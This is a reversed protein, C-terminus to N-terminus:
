GGYFYQLNKNIIEDSYLRTGDLKKLGRMLNIYAAKDVVAPSERGGATYADSGVPIMNAPQRVVDGGDALAESGLLARTENITDVNILARDKLNQMRRPELADITSEDYTLILNESGKYRPLLADGLFGSITRFLPIINNDYFNLKAVEMTAMAMNDPSVMPLPVKLANYITNAHRANLTPFDMDKVSESLQQWHFDGGLFPVEGANAAGQLKERVVHKVTDITEQNLTKPDGKFSLIGSPRGQNKLLANNHINSLLYQSIELQCAVLSSVGLLDNSSFNPNFARLHVIEKNAKSNIFRKRANREYNIQGSDKGYKYIQAYGDSTNPEITITTPKLSNIEIPESNEDKGKGTINLYFNGTLRYYNVIEQIFLESSTFPNPKKLLKLLPHDYVYEDKATNYLVFNISAVNDAILQLATFVPSCQLYFQIFKNLKTEFIFNSDLISITSFDYDRIFHKKETKLINFM